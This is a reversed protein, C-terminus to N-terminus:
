KVKIREIMRMGKRYRKWERLQEGKERRWRGRHRQRVGEKM